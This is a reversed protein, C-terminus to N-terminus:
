EAPIVRNKGTQKAQYMAKDARGVVETEDEDDGRLAVGASFTILLRENNHMFFKKTLERQLRSVTAVAEDLGTDPLIIIFEEGGYRGVSDSPRLTEKIVKALHILAQDGAQHGLTDNLRKFNDIDLLAISIPSQARQTRKFEKEMIEDLGRRNLAGTLQDERVLESVQELEDELQRIRKEAEDAQKRTQQLEEHSRLASAQILRTDYMIDELIHSLETLNEAGGIKQSYNSIKQHYEGTSDTLEGLRDIFTTMLNKLTSKADNLSERLLSQKIIADRLNREADAITRKDMPHDIIDQLMSIQGHLWKDDAVLEGVNEVLLRLLRILGEQIKLRDVGRLELKILFNRLQKALYTIKGADSANRAQNSLLNIEEALEPQMPLTSELTKALLERLQQLQENSDTAATAAPVPTPAATPAPQAETAVLAESSASPTGWSRMLSQLKEQLQAPDNAFRSLVTELGEKKRTVTVGKHTFEIQRMLDRILSSWGQAAKNREDLRSLWGQLETSCRSWDQEKVAQLLTKGLAITDPADQILRNGVEQLVKEPSHEPQGQGSIELYVRAYNDPTPAIKRAALTKFTERAFDSPTQHTTM